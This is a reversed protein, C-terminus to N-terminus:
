KLPRSAHHRASTVTAFLPSKPWFSTCTAEAVYYARKAKDRMSEKWKEQGGRHRGGRMRRRGGRGRERRGRGM